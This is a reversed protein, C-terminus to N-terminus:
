ANGHGMHRASMHLDFLMAKASIEFSKVHAAVYFAPVHPMAELDFRVAALMDLPAPESASAFAAMIEAMSYLDSYASHILDRRTM